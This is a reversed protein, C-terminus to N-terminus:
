SAAPAPPPPIVSGPRKPGGDGAVATQLAYWDVKRTLVMAAALVAFCLGAGLLLAHDESQLVAFLAGYRGALGAGFGSGRLWGGLVYRVYFSCLAVCAGAAALYADAFPVHESVAVLLLYFTALAAGVLAYQMPHIRLGALQEFLFFAAFTLAVFLFGYGTARETQQYPNIPELLRVGFASAMLPGAEKGAIAGGLDAAFFSTRWAADFGADGVTREAPLMRGDFSPHQWNSAMAVTTDRGVPVVSVSSTGALEFHIAYPVRPTKRPDFGPLPAHVGQGLWRQPNGPQVAIAKKGWELTPSRPLGRPDRVGLVVYGEGFTVNADDRLAGLDVAFAGELAVDDARWVRAAYIGRYRSGVDLVTHVDLKEPPVVLEGDQFYEREREIPVAVTEGPKKEAKMCAAKALAVVAPEDSQEAGCTQWVDVVEKRLARRKWPLVLLPGVLTQADSTQAAIEEIVESQRAAREQILNSVMGLPILLALSLAGIVIMKVVVNTKM